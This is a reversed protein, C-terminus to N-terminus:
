DIDAVCKQDPTPYILHRTLARTLFKETLSMYITLAYIRYIEKDTVSAKGPCEKDTVTVTKPCRYFIERNMSLINLQNCASQLM